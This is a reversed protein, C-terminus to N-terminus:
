RWGFPKQNAPNQANMPNFPSRPNGPNLVSSPSRPNNTSGLIKEAAVRREDLQKDRAATQYAHSARNPCVLKRGSGGCASCDRDFFFLITEIGQGACDACRVACLTSGCDSCVGIRMGHTRQLM